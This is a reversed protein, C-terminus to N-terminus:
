TVTTDTALEVAADDLEALGAPLTPEAVAVTVTDDAGVLPADLEPDELESDPVDLAMM